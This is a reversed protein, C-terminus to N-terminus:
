DSHRVFGHFVDSADVYYGVITGADNISEPQTGVSGSPDITKFAGEPSRVFGHQIGNSDQYSGTIVGADNLGVPCDSYCGTGQGAGTGAGTAEFVTFKGEPSRLFGHFVNNTDTFTGAIWGHNNVGLNCGPCGTGQGPGTGAGPADFTTLKGGPSRLMGHGVLNASNDMFNGVAGGHLDVFTAESGYCSVSTGGTCSGPGVFDVVKGDPYRLFAHFLSNADLTYGVVAGEDNIYLPVTAFNSDPTDFSTFAGWPMRVFGHTNGASDTYYGTIAGWDNISQAATGYYAIAAAGEAQFASIKGDPSRVFGYSVNNADVYSGAIAGSQNIAFTCGFCGTGQGSATGAGPAEFTVIRPACQDEAALGAPISLMYLTAGAALFSLKTFKMMIEGKQKNLHWPRPTHIV